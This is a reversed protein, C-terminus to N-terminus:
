LSKMYEVLAWREEETFKDNGYMDHGANSNGPLATDFESTGAGSATVFGVRVADFDSRGVYFVKTRQAAPLLLDYLNPV